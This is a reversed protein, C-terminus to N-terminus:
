LRVIRKKVSEQDDSPSKYLLLYLKINARQEIISMKLPSSGVILLFLDVGSASHYCHRVHHFDIQFSMFTVLSSYLFIEPPIIPKL